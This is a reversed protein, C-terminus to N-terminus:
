GLARQRRLVREAFELTERTTAVRAESVDGALAEDAAIKVAGAREELAALDEAQGDAAFQAREALLAPLAVSLQLAAERTRAADLDARARLILLECAAIREDGRMVSALREQPRLAEGRRRRAARPVEFAETFAGDALEDGTGFGIRVALAHEAAVDPLNPDLVSTRHAHIARNALRLAEALETGARGSDDRLGALWDQAAAEDGLPEPRIVTLTTLPVTPDAGAPDAPKPKPKGFRRRPPPPAGDVEVVLVRQPSGADDRELYRGPDLGV